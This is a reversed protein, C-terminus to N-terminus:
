KLCQLGPFQCQLQLLKWMYVGFDSLILCAIIFIATAESRSEKEQRHNPSSIHSMKESPCSLSRIRIGSNRTQNQIIYQYAFLGNGSSLLDVFYCTYSNMLYIIVFYILETYCKYPIRKLLPLFICMSFM